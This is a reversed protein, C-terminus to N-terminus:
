GPVIGRFGFLQGVFHGSVRGSQGREREDDDAPGHEDHGEEAAASSDPLAM